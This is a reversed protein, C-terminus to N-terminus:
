LSRRIHRSPSLHPRPQTCHLPRRLACQGPLTVGALDIELINKKLLLGMCAHVARQHMGWHFNKGWPKVAKALARKASSLDRSEHSKVSVKFLAAGEKFFEIGLPTGSMTAGMVDVDPIFEVLRKRWLSLQKREENELEQLSEAPLQDAIISILWCDGRAETNKSEMGNNRLYLLGEDRLQAVLELHKQRKVAKERRRAIEVHKSSFGPVLVGDLIADLNDEDEDSDDDALRPRARKGGAPPKGKGKKPM